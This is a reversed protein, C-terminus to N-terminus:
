VACGPPPPETGDLPIRAALQELLAKFDIPKTLYAVAGCRGQLDREHGHDHAGERTWGTVVIVPIGRTSREERLRCLLYEGNGRPMTYDTVIADPLHELALAFADM